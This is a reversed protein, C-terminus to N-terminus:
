RDVRNTCLGPKTFSYHIFPNRTKRGMEEEQKRGESDAAKTELRHVTFVLSGVVSSPRQSRGTLSSHAQQRVTPQNTKSISDWNAGAPRLNIHLQPHGQIESGRTGVEPNQSPHIFTMNYWMRNICHQLCFGTGQANEIVSHYRHGQHRTSM